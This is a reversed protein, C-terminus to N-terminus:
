LCYKFDTTIINIATKVKKLKWEAFTVERGVTGAATFLRNGINGAVWKTHDRM